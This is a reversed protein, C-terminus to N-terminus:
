AGATRHDLVDVRVIADSVSAEECNEGPGGRDVVLFRTFRGIALLSHHWTNRRFNVGQWGTSQFVRIAEGLPAATGEAVVVLFTCDELPYFAQSSLPHRELVSVQHPLPRPAARFLSILPRGAAEAVDVQALDDFRECTGDNIWVPEHGAIEIVDGFPAFASATLREARLAIVPM